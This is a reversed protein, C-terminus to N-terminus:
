LRTGPRSSPGSRRRSPANGTGHPPRTSVARLHRLLLKPLQVLEHVRGLVDPLGNLLELLLAILCLQIILVKWEPGRSLPASMGGKVQVHVNYHFISLLAHYLILCSLLLVSTETSGACNPVLRSMDFGRRVPRGTCSTRDCLCGQERCDIVDHPVEVLRGSWRIRGGDGGLGM